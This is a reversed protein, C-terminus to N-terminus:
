YNKHFINNLFYMIPISAGWVLSLVFLSLSYSFNFNIVELGVGAVYSIPGFFAGLLIMVFWRGKMWFMSHNLTAAFGIWMCIIWIPPFFINPFIYGQYSLFNTQFHFSEVIFGLLGCSLILKIERAPNPILKLHIAIFLFTFILGLYNYGLKVGLVCSWWVIYFFIANFVKLLKENM